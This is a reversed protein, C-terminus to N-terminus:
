ASFCAGLRRTPSAARSLAPYATAFELVGHITFNQRSGTVARAPIGLGCISETAGLYQGPRLACACAMDGEIRRKGSM